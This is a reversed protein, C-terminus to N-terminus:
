APVANSPKGNIFDAITAVTTKLIELRAELTFFAIHPTIIVNPLDILVHNQLLTRIQENHQEPNGVIAAEEALDREGELVDLGAGAVTGDKLAALLAQTDVLEGRATNILYAGKRMKKFTDANILHRTESRYPVHLTIIESESVLRELPVYVIGHEKAFAEDPNPDHALVDMAFAKAITVVNRGIKGTGIVGLTKGQLDFGELGQISFNSGERIQHYAPFIKRSLGLILAFTFEAVTRSGYSPVNSVQINKAKAHAVDIHDFGTSRTNILRLSPMADILDKTVQSKIFTSIAEADGAESVNSSSLPAELIKVENGKLFQTIVEQEDKPVEFFVIKMVSGNYVEAM